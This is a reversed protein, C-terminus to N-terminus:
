RFSVKSCTVSNEPPLRSEPLPNPITVPCKCEPHVLKTELQNMKKDNAEGWTEEPNCSLKTFNSKFILTAELDSKSVKYSLILLLVAVGILLGLCTQFQNVSMESQKVLVNSIIVGVSTFYMKQSIMLLKNTRAFDACLRYSM